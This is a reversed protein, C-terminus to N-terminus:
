AAPRNRAARTRWGEALVDLGALADYDSQNGNNRLVVDAVRDLTWMPHPRAMLTLESGPEVLGEQLVRFYWGARGTALVRQVMDPVHFRENLKWCPQRGQSVQLLASGARWVDGVCVNKETLGEASLNEGFGGPVFRQAAAGLEAQWPDYHEVPYYHVAQELGGHVRRDAQADVELGESGIWAPGTIPRKDIASLEGRALLQPQGALVAKIITIDTM